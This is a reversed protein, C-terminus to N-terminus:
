LDSGKKDINEKEFDVFHPISQRSIVFLLVVGLAFGLLSLTPSLFLILAGIIPMTKVKFIDTVSQDTCKNNVKCNPCTVGKEVIEKNSMSLITLRSMKNNCSKCIRM